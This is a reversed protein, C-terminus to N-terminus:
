CSWSLMCALLSVKIDVSNAFILSPPEGRPVNVARCHRGDFLEYGAACDCFYSGDLNTCNQDCNM